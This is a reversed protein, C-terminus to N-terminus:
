IKAALGINVVIEKATGVPVITVNVYVKSTSLINQNPDCFVKYDSIETNIKMIELPNSAQSEFYKCTSVDIKGTTGDINVPSNLLDVMMAYVGRRAKMVVQSTQIDNYDDTSLNANVDGSLFSGAKNAYQNVFIYGKNNLDNKTTPTVNEYSDGGIKLTYYESDGDNIPFAGVWAISNSVKKLSMIGLTVGLQNCTVSNATSITGGVGGADSGIVVSVDPCLYTGSRLDTASALTLGTVKSGYLFYAPTQYVDKLETSITQLATIDSTNFPRSYVDIAFQKIEGKTANQLTKVESFSYTTGSVFYVYLPATPNIRFYQDIQYWTHKLVGTQNSNIYDSEAEYVSGYKKWNQTTYGSAPLINTVTYVVLASINDTNSNQKSLGGKTQNFSVSSISM